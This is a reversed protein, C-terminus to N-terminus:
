PQPPIVGEVILMRRHAVRHNLNIRLTGVTARGAATRGVLRPGSWRFHRKWTQSRPNFLPVVKGTKRDIGSLNQGKANNCAFCALCLNKARTPGGHSIAIVHDIQFPTDDFAQPIQCYECRERARRWVLRELARNM